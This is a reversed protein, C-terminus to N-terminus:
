ALDIEKGDQALYCVLAGALQAEDLLALADGVQLAGVRAVKQVVTRSVFSNLLQTREARKLYCVEGFVLDARERAFHPQWCCVLGGKGAKCCPKGVSM